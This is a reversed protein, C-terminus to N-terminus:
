RPSTGNFSDLPFRRRNPCIVLCRCNEDLAFHREERNDPPWVFALLKASPTVWIDMEPMVTTIDQWYTEQEDDVPDPPLHTRM